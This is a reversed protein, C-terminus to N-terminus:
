HDFQHFHLQLSKSENNIMLFLQWLQHCNSSKILLTRILLSCSMVDNRGAITLGTHLKIELGDREEDMNIVTCRQVASCQVSSYQAVGQWAARLFNVYFQQWTWITWRRYENNMNSHHCSQPTLWSLARFLGRMNIRINFNVHIWVLMNSCHKDSACVFFWM